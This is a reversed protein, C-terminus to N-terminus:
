MLAFRLSRRPVPVGTNQSFTMSFWQYPASSMAIADRTMRRALVYLAVLHRVIVDCDGAGGTSYQSLNSCRRTLADIVIASKTAVNAEHHTAM